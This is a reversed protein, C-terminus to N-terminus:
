PAGAAEGKEEAEIGIARQAVRLGGGLHLRRRRAGDDCRQSLFEGRRRAEVPFFKALDRVAPLPPRTLLTFGQEMRDTDHEGAAAFTGLEVESHRRDIAACIQRGAGTHRRHDAVAFAGCRERARQLLHRSWSSAFDRLSASFEKYLSNRRPEEHRRRKTTGTLSM